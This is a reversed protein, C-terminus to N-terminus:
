GEGARAARPRSAAFELFGIEGPSHGARSLLVGAESCQQLAHTLLHLAYYWLPIPTTEGPPPAALDADTLGSIWARTEAEDRRWHDAVDAITAYDGPELDTLSEWSEPGNRLRERWSWEVDLEHILTARLDRTAVTESSAFQEPTLQAAGALIRDRMWFLYDFLLAVDTKTM